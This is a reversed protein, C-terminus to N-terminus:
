FRKKIIRTNLRNVITRAGKRSSKMWVLINISMRKVAMKRAIINAILVWREWRIMAEIKTSGRIMEVQDM